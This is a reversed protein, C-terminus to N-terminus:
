TLAPTNPVAFAALTGRDPQSFLRIRASRGYLLCLQQTVIRLGHPSAEQVSLARMCAAQTMGPGDDIVAILIYNRRARVVIRVHGTDIKGAAGHTIANEVLTQLSFPPIRAAMSAADIEQSVQLREGMRYREIDLFAHVIELEEQLSQPTTPKTELARRMLTSLRLTASEAKEPDLSCLAAISTLTNFLFHPHILARLASLQGEMLLTRARETELRLREADARMVADNLVLQLLLLGFGNAPVSILAYLVSPTHLWLLGIQQMLISGAQAVIGAILARSLPHKTGFARRIAEALLTSAILAYVLPIIASPSSFLIAGGIVVLTAVGGAAMTGILTALTVSMTHVIYPARAGPFIIETLGVLGMLLGIVIKRRLTTPSPYLLQLLRGRALLYAIVTLVCTDEIFANLIPIDHRM